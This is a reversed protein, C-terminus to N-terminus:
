PWPAGPAAWPPLPLTHRGASLSVRAQRIVLQPAMPTAPWLKHLGKAVQLLQPSMDLRYLLRDSLFLIAAATAGDRALISAKLSVQPVPLSVTLGLSSTLGPVFGLSRPTQILCSVSNPAQASLLFSPFDLFVTPYMGKMGGNWEMGLTVLCYFTSGFVCPPCSCRGM